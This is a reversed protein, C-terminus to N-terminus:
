RAMFMEPAKAGGTPINMILWNLKVERKRTQEPRDNHASRIVWRNSLLCTGEDSAEETSPPNRRLRFATAGDRMPKKTMNM